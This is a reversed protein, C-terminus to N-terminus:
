KGQHSLFGLFKDFLFYLAKTLPMALKNAYSRGGGGGEGREGGGYKLELSTLKNIRGRPLM